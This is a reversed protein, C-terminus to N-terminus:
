FNEKECGREGEWGKRCTVSCSRPCRPFTLPSVAWIGPTVSHRIEPHQQLMPFSGHLLLWCQNHSATSKTCLLPSLMGQSSVFGQLTVNEWFYYDRAGNWMTSESGSKLDSRRPLPSAGSGHWFVPLGLQLQQTPVKLHFLKSSTIATPEPWMRMANVWSIKTTASIM